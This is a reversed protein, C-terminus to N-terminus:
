LRGGGIIFQILANGATRQLAGPNVLQDEGPGTRGCHAGAERAGRQVQVELGTGGRQPRERPRVVLVREASRGAGLGPGDGRPAARDPASSTSTRGAAAAAACAEGGSPPTTLHPSDVSVRLIRGVVWRAPPLRRWGERM